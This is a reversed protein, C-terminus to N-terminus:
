GGLRSGGEELFKRVAANFEAPREICSIHGAGPIRELRAGPISSALVESLVPPTTADEEGVIVLTPKQVEGLRDLANFRFGARAARV